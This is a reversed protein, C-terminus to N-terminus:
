ARNDSDSISNIANEVIQQLLRRAQDQHGVRLLDLLESDVIKYWLLKRAGFHSIRQAIEPRMDKLLELLRGYEPGVDRQLKEKLRVALAPAWGNTSIAITLDGSRHVSGFSFRCHEPDDVANCLIGRQECLHFIASNDPLNAIVLFCGDLDAPKFESAIVHMVEAGCNLLAQRKAALEPGDGIVVCRKGTLDLFIPYRFNVKCEGEIRYTPACLGTPPRQARYFVTKAAGRRYKISLKPNM